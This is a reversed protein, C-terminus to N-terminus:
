IRPFINLVDVPPYLNWELRMASLHKIVRKPFSYKIIRNKLLIIITDLDIDKDRYM